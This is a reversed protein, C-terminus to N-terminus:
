WLRVNSTMRKLGLGYATIGAITGRWSHPAQRKYVGGRRRNIIGYYAARRQSTVVLCSAAVGGLRWLEVNVAAHKILTVIRGNHNSICAARANSKLRQAFIALWIQWRYARGGCV